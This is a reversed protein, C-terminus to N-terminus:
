HQRQILNRFDGNALQDGGIEEAHACSGESVRFGGCNGGVERGGAAGAVLEEEDEAGSGAVTNRFEEAKAHAIDPPVPLHDVLDHDGAAEKFTPVPHM